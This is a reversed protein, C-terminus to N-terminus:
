KAILRCLERVTIYNRASSKRIDAAEITEAKGSFEAPLGIFCRVKRFADRGRAKKRPVMGRIARRVYLDPRKQFFPGQTPQGLETRLRHKLLIDKKRGTIVAKESNVIVVEEGGLAKKAALTAMRGLILGSADIIM